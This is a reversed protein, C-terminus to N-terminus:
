AGVEALFEPSLRGEFVHTVPGSMLVHGDERWEIELPGGDLHVTVRREVLGKRIGAVVAACAGSGCALTIGAGREWVRLRVESPSLVQVFEVNAREPFMPHHEWHRGADVLSVTWVDDVFFVCHPNGMSVAGPSGALPLSVTDTEEALPIDRWGTHAPGMDVRIRGDAMREATLRGNASALSVAGAGREDMLLDAVCRTANGCVGADSGDSNWFTVTADATDSDSIVGLQDFGVGRHRDGLAKALAATMPDVAGRADIIVFDNGLGHMKLFRLGPSM